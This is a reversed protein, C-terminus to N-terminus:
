TNKVFLKTNHGFEQILLGQCELTESTDGTKRVGRPEEPWTDIRTTEALDTEINRGEV